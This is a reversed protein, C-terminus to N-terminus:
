DTIKIVFKKFPPIFSNESNYIKLNGDDEDVEFKTGYGIGKDTFCYKPRRGFGHESRPIVIFVRKRDLIDLVTWESYEKIFPKKIYNLVYNIASFTGISLSIVIVLWHIEFFGILRCVLLVSGAFCGAIAFILSSRSSIKM